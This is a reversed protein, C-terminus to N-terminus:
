NDVLNYSVLDLIEAMSHFGEDVLEKAVVCGRDEDELEQVVGM